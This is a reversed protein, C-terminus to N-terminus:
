CCSGLPHYVSSSISNPFKVVFCQNCLYNFLVISWFKVAKEFFIELM